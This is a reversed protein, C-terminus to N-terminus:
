QTCCFSDVFDYAPCMIVLRCFLTSHAEWRLNYVNWFNILFLNEGIDSISDRMKSCSHFERFNVYLINLSSVLLSFISSLAAVFFYLVVALFILRMNSFM